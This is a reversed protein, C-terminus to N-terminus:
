QRLLGGPEQDGIQVLRLNVSDLGNEIKGIQENANTYPAISQYLKLAAQYDQAARSVEDKEQPLGRVSRSDLWLRDARDRYGDALQAQDRNGLKYGRNAAQKLAENAKDIDKLGYVYVRALGLEPDPSHPLLSQAENFDAIAEDLEKPNRHVTGNIRAIHGDCLRLEGRTANDPDMALAHSLYTRARRWDAEYLPQADNRYSAIVRGAAEVFQQKVVNRPGRLLWSSSHGTSLETWRDWIQGLDTVQETEVQRELDQGRGYLRYGSIMSWMIYLAIVAALAAFGRM